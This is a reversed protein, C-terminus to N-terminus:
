HSPLVILLMMRGWEHFGPCLDRADTLGDHIENRRFCARAQLLGGAEHFVGASGGRIDRDPQRQQPNSGRKDPFDAPVGEASEQHTREPVRAHIRPANAEVILMSGPDREDRTGQLSFALEFEPFPKGRIFAKFGPVDVELLHAVGADNM